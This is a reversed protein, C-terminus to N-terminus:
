DGFLAKARKEARRLERQLLLESATAQLGLNIFVAAKNAPYSAILDKEIMQLESPSLIADDNLRDDVVERYRSLYSTQWSIAEIGLRPSKSAGINPNYGPYLITDAPLETQLAALSDLWALLRGTLIPHVEYTIVGGSFIVKDSGAGVIWISDAESEGPGLDRITLEVGDVIFSQRDALEIDPARRNPDLLGGTMEGFRADYERYQKAVRSSSMVPAKDGLAKAFGGYHGPHAHTLLGAAVPKNIAVIAAALKAGQRSSFGSDIVVVHDSTEVIYSYTGIEGPERFAHVSYKEYADSNFDPAAALAPLILSFVSLVCLMAPIRVIIIRWILLRRFSGYRM